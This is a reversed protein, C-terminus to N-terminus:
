RSGSQAELRAASFLSRGEAAGLTSVLEPLAAEWRALAAAAAPDAARITVLVAALGEDATRLRAQERALGAYREDLVGLQGRAALVLAAATAGDGGALAGRAAAVARQAEGAVGAATVAVDGPPCAAPRLALVYAVLGDLVAPSPPAGDFEGIVLGEIFSRLEGPGVQRPDRALDPIPKPNDIGDGRKKSFLSSTVDATGPAGSVGPFRFNANGRGSRHCSECSVGARAAQGGLLLPSRFAARGIEIALDTRALCEGPARTLQAVRDVGPPLWLLARLPLEAALVPVALLAVVGFAM